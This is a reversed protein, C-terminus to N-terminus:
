GSSHGGIQKNRLITTAGEELDMAKLIANKGYKNKIRIITEQVKQENNEDYENNISMSFLDMQKYKIRKNYKDKNELNCFSLGLKRILLLPNVLKDYLEVVYKNIINTSSTKHDIRITGHSPKPMKRGYFDYVIEGSYISKYKKSKLNDVDYIITLVIHDTLYEKNVLSLTLLESIEQIVIRAKKYDYPTHLVQSQSLSTSTPKYSKVDKITCPEYGFAHDILIEANVGFIKYLLDEDEIACKAVDGMTYLGQEKLRNSIGKGVRWFDTLPEHNWLEYKYKKQDLFAIRAGEKNPDEGCTQDGCPIPMETGEPCTILTNYERRNWAQEGETDLMRRNNEIAEGLTMTVFHM